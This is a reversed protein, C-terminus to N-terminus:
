IRPVDSQFAALNPGGQAASRSDSQFALEAADRIRTAAHEYGCAANAATVEGENPGVARRRMEGRAVARSPLPAYTTSGTRTARRAGAGKGNCHRKSSPRWLPALLSLPALVSFHHPAGPPQDACAVRLLALSPSAYTPSKPSQWMM